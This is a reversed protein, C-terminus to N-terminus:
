VAVGSGGCQKCEIAGYKSPHWGRGQCMRCPHAKKEAERLLTDRAEKIMFLTYETTALPGCTDPHTDKMLRNAARKIDEVSANEKVGIVVMADIVKM